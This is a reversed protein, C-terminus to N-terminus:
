KRKITLKDLKLNYTAIIKDNSELRDGYKYNLSKLIYKKCHMKVPAKCIRKFQELENLGGYVNVCEHIIKDDACIVYKNYNEQFLMYIKEIRQLLDPITVDDGEAYIYEHLEELSNKIDELILEEKPPETIIEADM